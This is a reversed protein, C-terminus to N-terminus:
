RSRWRGKAALTEDRGEAREMLRGVADGAGARRRAGSSSVRFPTTSSRGQSRGQMVRAHMTRVDGVRVVALGNRLEM